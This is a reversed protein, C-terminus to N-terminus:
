LPLFVINKTVSFIPEEDVLEGKEDFYFREYDMLELFSFIDSSTYGARKLIESDVEILLKPKHTKLVTKMGQLAFLENGEIDMKIMSIKLINNKSAYEDLAIAKLKTENQKSENYSSVMGLNKDKEDYFLSITKESEAVALKEVKINKFTNLGINKLLSKHNQEFPEFSYVKGESVKQAATLTYIGINAGVDVFVDNASLNKEIWNLETNEYNGKFYINQQIWDDLHLNLRFGRFDVVKTEDKFLDYPLFIRKYFGFYRKNFFPIRLLLKFFGAQYSM